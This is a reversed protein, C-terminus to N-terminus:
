PLVPPDPEAAEPLPRNGVSQHPRETNYHDVYSRVVQNLHTEGLALIRDLCEVRLSQGWREVYANM